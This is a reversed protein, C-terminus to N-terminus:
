ENTLPLGAPNVESSEVAENDLNYADLWQEYQGNEILYNIADAIPEALGSDKKVTAAILGQLSEGAGSFTGATRTPNASDARQTNQYAVGPNPGFYADIQGSDLALYTANTDPFYKVDLTKGESQLKSQWELILKEQNTGSSVAVTLGALNEYDDDFEWSSSKEVAFALNDERYSAFDYKEKRKETDTINSFGVDTTGNDIGVFLNDWTSNKIEPELGFVAAVLRGLDPESGTITEQDDGTFALPPFGAPLSGVGITLTGSDLIEKPLEDRIKAVAAVSVETETAAGNSAAGITVTGSDAADSDSASADGSCGALSGVLASTLLLAGAARRLRASTTSPM